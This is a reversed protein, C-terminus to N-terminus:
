VAILLFTVITSVMRYKLLSILSGSQPIFLTTLTATLKCKVEFILYPVRVTTRSLLEQCGNARSCLKEVLVRLM